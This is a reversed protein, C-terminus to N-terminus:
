SKWRPAPPSYSTRGNQPPYKTGDCFTPLRLPHLATNAEAFFRDRAELKAQEVEGRALLDDTNHMEDPHFQPGFIERYFDETVGRATGDFNSFLVTAPLDLPQALM